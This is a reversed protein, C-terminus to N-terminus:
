LYDAQAEMQKQTYAKKEDKDYKTKKGCNYSAKINGPFKTCYTQNNDTWDEYYSKSSSLAIISGMKKLLGVLQIILIAM